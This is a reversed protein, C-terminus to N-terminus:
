CLSVESARSEFLELIRTRYDIVVTVPNAVLMLNELCPLKALHTVESVHSIKNSTLDLTTLSYLKSFARLREINNDTMNLTVINGLRTHLAELNSFNNFSLDLHHLAPLSELHRIDRINNHSLNLDEVKCLLRQLISIYPTM